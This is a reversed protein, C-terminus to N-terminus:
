RCHMRRHQLAPFAARVKELRDPDIEATVIGAGSPLGAMVKGWPDVIMSHGYTERGNVHFGGQNSAIAYCLNELARARVLIEWHAAGTQATFASPVALIDMGTDAM